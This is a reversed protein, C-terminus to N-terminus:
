LHGASQATGSAPSKEAPPEARTNFRIDVMANKGFQVEAGRAILASYLSWAMGYYGFAAGVYPSTQSIASGLMGFGLGGGLTRGGVNPNPGAAQGSANRGADNDGARRAIMVAAAATLFRTKSETAKVGGEGDVKLPTQGTSEAGQLNAQTRFKLADQGPREAVIPAIPATTQLRAIEAPLQIERFNFRLQGSRHFMRAKKAVVVTGELHTGEPLILKHESSFVPEALVAAVTQGPKSSFSNLPTILRAHAVSDAQPQTGVLALFGPPAPASGFSLPDLLEADFRTGRRVYQPHYPLKALLYDELKELKNPGRITDSISRARDIQGQIADKVQQKGTGLVGTNQPPTSSQKKPPRLSVISGLGPSEATHLPMRSGDPMVITTFEIPATHLPTFDGNLIASVRQWKPISQLRDVKGLAVAGAPIVQRDFAYVPDLVKAEVVAGTRKPARKTLYLRVPAGAPVVLAIEQQQAGGEAQHQASIVSLPFCVFVLIGARLHMIFLEVCTFHRAPVALGGSAARVLNSESLCRPPRTLEPSKPTVM